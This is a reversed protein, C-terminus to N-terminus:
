SLLDKAISLLEAAMPLALALIETKALFEVQGAVTPEGSERCIDATIQGVAAIGL